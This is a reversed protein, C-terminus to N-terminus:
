HLYGWHPALPHAHLSRDHETPFLIKDSLNTLIVPEHHYSFYVPQQDM